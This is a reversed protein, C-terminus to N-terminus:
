KLFNKLNDMKQLCRKQIWVSNIMTSVAMQSPPASRKLTAFQFHRIDETTPLSIMWFCQSNKSKHPLLMILKPATKQRGVFRAIVVKRIAILSIVLAALAKQKKQKQNEVAMVM